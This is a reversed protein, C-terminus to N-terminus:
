LAPGIDAADHQEAGGAAQEDLGREWQCGMRQPMKVKRIAFRTYPLRSCVQRNPRLYAVDVAVHEADSDVPQVRGRTLM